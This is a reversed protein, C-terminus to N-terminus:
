HRFYGCCFLSKDWVLSVPPHVGPATDWDAQSRTFLSGSCVQGAPCGEEQLSLLWGPFAARVGWAELESVLLCMQQWWQVLCRAVRRGETKVVRLWHPPSVLEVHSDLVGHGM